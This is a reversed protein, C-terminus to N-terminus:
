PAYEKKAVRVDAYPASPTYTVRARLAPALPHGLKELLDVDFDTASGVLLTLQELDLVLIADRLESVLGANNFRRTVRQRISVEIEDDYVARKEEQHLVFLRRQRDYDEQWRDRQEKAVKARRAALVLVDSFDRDPQGDDDLLEGDENVRLAEM